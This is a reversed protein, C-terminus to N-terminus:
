TSRTVLRNRAFGAGTGILAALVVFLLFQDWGGGTSTSASTASLRPRTALATAGAVASADAASAEPDALAAAPAESAVATSAFGTDGALFTTPGLPEGSDFGSGGGAATGSSESTSSDVGSAGSSGSSTGDSSGGFESADFGELNESGSGEKLAVDLEPPNFSVQFAGADAAPVVVLAPSEGRLVSTVDGSWTGDPERKLPTSGAECDRKPGEEFNGKGTKFTGAAVCARLTPTGLASGSEKIQLTATAITDGPEAARVAGFSVVGDPANAVQFGGEPATATPNATNRTFFGVGAVRASVATPFALAVGVALVAALATLTRKM